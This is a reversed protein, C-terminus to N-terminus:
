GNKTGNFMKNKKKWDNLQLLINKKKDEILEKGNKSNILHFSKNIKFQSNIESLNTKDNDFGFNKNNEYKESTNNNRLDMFFSSYSSPTNLNIKNGNLPYAIRNENSSNVSLNNNLIRNENNDNIASINGFLNSEPVSEREALQKYIAPTVKNCHECKFINTNNFIKSMIKDCNLCFSTKNHCDYCLYIHFQEESLYIKECLSCCNM